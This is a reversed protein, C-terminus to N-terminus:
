YGFNYDPRIGAWYNGPDRRNPNHLNRNSDYEWYPILQKWHTNLFNLWKDKDPVKLESVARGIKEKRLAELIQWDTRAVTDGRNKRWYRYAVREDISALVADQANVTNPLLRYGNHDVRESIYAILVEGEKFTTSIQYGDVGVPHIDYEVPSDLNFNVCNGIHYPINYFNHCTRRMLKFEDTYKCTKEGGLTNGYGTFHAMYGYFHEPHSARFIENVDVTVIPSDCTCDVKECAPCQLDIVVQCGSGDMIDQTWQVVQDRRCKKEPYARYACEMAAIFGKPLKGRFDRIPIVAIKHDKQTATILRGIGQDAWELYDVEPINGYTDSDFAELGVMKKYSPLVTYIPLYDVTM